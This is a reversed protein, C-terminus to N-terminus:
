NIYTLKGGEKNGSINGKIGLNMNALRLAYVMEEYLYVKHKRDVTDYHTAETRIWLNQIDKTKLVSCDKSRGLVNFHM